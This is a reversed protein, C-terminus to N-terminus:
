HRDRKWDRRGTPSSALATDIKDKLVANLRQMRDIVAYLDNDEPSPCLLLEGITLGQAKAAAKLLGVANLVEGDQDSELMAVVKVLKPDM